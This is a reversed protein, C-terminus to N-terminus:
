AGVHVLDLAARWAALKEAFSRGAHAPSTSPLAVVVADCALGSTRVVRAFTRAATGGNCLVTRVRRHRAFFAAFDNPVATAGVIDGDLSGERECSQLVDWLAIGNAELAALRRGYPANAAFGCLAGLIPWFANRPHAYYRGAALSAEGPMSGLILVRADARAVPPFSSVRPM